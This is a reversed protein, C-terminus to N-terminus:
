KKFMLFYVLVAGGLLYLPNLGSSVDTKLDKAVAKDAAVTTKPKQTSKITKELTEIGAKITTGGPVFSLGKKLVDIGKLKKLNKWFSM